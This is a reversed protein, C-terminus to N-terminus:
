NVQEYGFYEEWLLLLRERRPLEVGRQAPLEEELQLILPEAFMNLQTTPAPQLESLTIKLWELPKRPILSDVTRSLVQFDCTPVKFRRQTEALDGEPATKVGLKLLTAIKNHSRLTTILEELGHKLYPQLEDLTLPRLFGELTTCDLEWALETVQQTQFPNLDEGRGLKQLIPARQGFQSMLEVLPIEALEGVTKIGLKELSATEPLPLRHLPIQRLFYETQQPKILENGQPLNHAALKAVLKSFGAGCISGELELKAKTQFDEMFQKLISEQQFRLYWAHPYEPELEATYQKSFEHWSQSFPQFDALAIPVTLVPKELHFVAKPKIQNTVGYQKLEPSFDWIEGNHTLIYYANTQPSEFHHIYFHRLGCYIIM